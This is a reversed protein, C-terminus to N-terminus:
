SATPTTAEEPNENQKEEEKATGNTGNTGNEAKELLKSEAVRLKKKTELLENQLSKIYVIAMEVTSAKSIAQSSNAKESKTASGNAADGAKDARETEQILSPPLLGEIEKLATNIRNRRGQEALKHNTRKSSLNEALANPYSVGPLLTGELIHQYNSKSALYIASTESNMADGRILPQISPSIKPRLAPSAQSSSVSQRKKSIRANPKSEARKAGVPGAPSMAGVQPSATVSGSGPRDSAGNTPRLKPTQSASLTPTKENSTVVTGSSATALETNTSAAEPLSIDEMAEDPYENIIFGGSRSFQNEPTQATPQNHLRMLTAPTAAERAIIESRSEQTGICPSRGSRPLAPPPMLPESLPEPSISDQGSSENSRPHYGDLQNVSLRTSPKDQSSVDESHVSSNPQMKRRSSIPRVSPSQRVLRTGTRASFSPKRRQKRALGPSSPASASPLQGLDIPSSVFGIDPTQAISTNFVYGNSNANRAELAPSTLPTFYEGPVTYEPLRFQQDLPTMAPSLSPTFASQDDTQNAYHEYHRHSETNLRTLGHGQNQTIGGHMEVSNPTPPIYQRQVYNQPVANPHKQMYYQPEVHASTTAMGQMEMHHHMQHLAPDYSPAQSTDQMHHDMGAPEVGQMTTPIDPASTHVAHQNRSNAVADLESFSFDFDLYKSFEEDETVPVLLDEPLNEPWSPMSNDGDMAM